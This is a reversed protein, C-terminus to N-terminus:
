CTKEGKKFGFFARAVECWEYSPLLEFLQKLKRFSQADEMYAEVEEFPLTVYPKNENM